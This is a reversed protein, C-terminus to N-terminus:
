QKSLQQHQRKYEDIVILAQKLLLERFTSNELDFITYLRIKNWNIIDSFGNVRRYVYGEKSIFPQFPKNLQIMKQYANLNKSTYDDSNLKIPEDEKQNQKDSGIEVQIEPEPITMEENLFSFLMESLNLSTGKDFPNFFDRSTDQYLYQLRRQNNYEYQTLNRMLCKIHIYFFYTSKFVIISFILLWIHYILENGVCKNSLFIDYILLVFSVTFYVFIVSMTMLYVLGNYAGICLNFWDSHFDFKAICVECYCCHQSRMPKIIKCTQCFNKRLEPNREIIFQELSEDYTIIGRKRYSHSFWLLISIAILVLYFPLRLLLIPNIRTLLFHNNLIFLTILIQKAHLLRKILSPCDSNAIIQDFSSTINEFVGTVTDNGFKLYKKITSLMTEKHQHNCQDGHSHGQGQYQGQGDQQQKENKQQPNMNIEQDGEGEGKLRESESENM